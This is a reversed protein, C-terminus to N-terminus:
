GCFHGRRSRGAECFAAAAFVKDDMAIAKLFEIQTARDDPAFHQYKAYMAFVISLPAGM